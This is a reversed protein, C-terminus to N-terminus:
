GAATGLLAILWIGASALLGSVLVARGLRVWRGQAQRLEARQRRQRPESGSPAALQQILEWGPDGDGKPIGSELIERIAADLGRLDSVGPPPEEDFTTRDTFVVLHHVLYQQGVLARLARVVAGLERVPNSFQWSGGNGSRTWRQQDLGSVQGGLFRTHVVLLFGDGRALQEVTLMGGRSSPLAIDTLLEDAHSLLAARLQARARHAHLAPWAMLGVGFLMVLLALAQARYLPNEFWGAGAPAPAASARPAAPGGQATPPPSATAQAVPTAPSVAAPV